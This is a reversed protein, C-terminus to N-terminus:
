NSGFIQVGVGIERAEVKVALRGIFYGAARGSLGITAEGGWGLGDMDVRACLKGIGRRGWDHSGPLRGSCEATYRIIM